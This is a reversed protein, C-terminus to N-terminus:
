PLLEKLRAKLEEGRLGRAVIVNNEDLVLTQPISNIVYLHALASQKFGLDSCHLWSQGDARIAKKWSELDGDLSVGLIELGKPHFEKYIEVMNPMDARCPGCWSAWFEIIKYKAKIDYLSIRNGEPTMATFDPAQVGPTTARLRRIRDEVERGYTAARAKPGLLAFKEELQKLSLKTIKMKLRYASAIADPNQFLIENEKRDMAEELNELRRTLEEAERTLDEAVSKNRAIRLKGGEIFLKKDIDWFLNYVGQEKGGTILTGELRGFDMNAEFERNELFIPFGGGLGDISIQAITLSDVSGRFSFEGDKVVAVGLTDIKKGQVSRFNADALLYVKKGDVRAAYGRVAFGYPTSKCGSLFSIIWM